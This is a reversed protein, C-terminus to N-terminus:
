SAQGYRHHHPPMPGGRYRVDTALGGWRRRCTGGHDEMRHGVVHLRPAPATCAIEGIQHWPQTTIAVDAVGSRKFRASRHESEPAISRSCMELTAPGIGTGSLRTPPVGM